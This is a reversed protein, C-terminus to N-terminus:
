AAKRQRLGNGPLAIVGKHRRYGQVGKLWPATVSAKNRLIGEPVPIQSFDVRLLPVKSPTVSMSIVSSM